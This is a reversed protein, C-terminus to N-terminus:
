VSRCIRFGVATDIHEFPEMFKEITIGLYFSQNWWSGGRAIVPPIADAWEHCMEAINGLMDYLGFNNPKKTGVPHTGYENDDKGKDHSNNQYVAYQDIVSFDNDDGWYFISNSGARCAYIWEASSPLRFGKADDNFSIELQFLDENHVYKIKYFPELESISSLANCFQIAEFWSVSEVPNDPKNKFYSPNYRMIHQFQQQTIQYKGLYFAKIEKNGPIKIMEIETKKDAVM